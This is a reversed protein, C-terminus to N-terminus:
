AHAGVILGGMLSSTMVEADNHVVVVMTGGRGGRKPDFFTRVMWGATMTGDPADGGNWRFTYATAVDEQDTPPNSPPEHILVVDGGWVYSFTTGSAYYKIAAEYIPPLKLLASIAATDPVPAASNKYGIYKQVAANRVFDHGVQESWVIATVKGASAELIRHLDKIPDSATGGNWKTTSDLTIVNNANFSATTRLLTGVRIERELKLANMVRAVAAQQPRLPADANATVNTPVFSGLAYEVTSYSSQSLTPNVEAVHGGPTGGNPLVRRFANVDDWTNFKNSAKDVVVAPMVIDAVGDALKYGAAYNPLPADTHVDGQALDMAVLVEDGDRDTMMVPRGVQRAINAHAVRGAYDSLAEDHDGMPTLQELIAGSVPDRVRGSSMELMGRVTGNPERLLITGKEKM